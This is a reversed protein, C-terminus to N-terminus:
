PRGPDGDLKWFDEGGVAERCHFLSVANQTTAYDPNLCYAARAGLSRTAERVADDSLRTSDTRIYTIHGAEYLDSALKSTKKPTWGWRSGAALM